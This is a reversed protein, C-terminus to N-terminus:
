NCAVAEPMARRRETAHDRILELLGPGSMAADGTEGRERRRIASPTFRAENALLEGFGELHRRHWIRTKGIFPVSLRRAVREVDSTKADLGMCRLVFLVDSTGTPFFLEMAEGITERSQGAAEMAQRCLDLHQDVTLCFAPLM